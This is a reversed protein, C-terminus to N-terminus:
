VASRPRRVAQDMWHLLLPALLATTLAGLLLARVEGGHPALRANILLCPLETLLVTGFALAARVVILRVSFIRHLRLLAYCALLYLLAYEGLPGASLLDKVLGVGWALPLAQEPKARLATLLVMLAFLDPRWAAPTYKPLLSAAPLALLLLLLLFRPRRM